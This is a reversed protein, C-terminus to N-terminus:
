SMVLSCNENSGKGVGIKLQRYGALDIVEPERIEPPEIHWTTEKVLHLPIMPYKPRTVVHMSIARRVSWIALAYSLPYPVVYAAYVAEAVVEDREDRSLWFYPRIAREVLWFYEQGNGM